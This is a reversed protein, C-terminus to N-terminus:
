DLLRNYLSNKVIGFSLAVTIVEAHFDKIMNIHIKL